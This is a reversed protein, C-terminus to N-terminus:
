STMKRRFAVLGVLGSGLLLVAGPIPVQNVSALYQPLIEADMISGDVLAWQTSEPWYDYIWLEDFSPKTCHLQLTTM